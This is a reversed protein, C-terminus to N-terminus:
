VISGWMKCVCAGVCVCTCVSKKFGFLTGISVCFVSLSLPSLKNSSSAHCDSWFVQAWVVEEVSKLVLKFGLCPFSSLLQNKFYTQTKIKNKLATIWFVVKFFDHILDLIWFWPFLSTVCQEPELWLQEWWLRLWISVKAVSITARLSVCFAESTMLVESEFFLYAVHSSVLLSLM